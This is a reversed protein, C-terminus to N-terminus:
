IKPTRQSFAINKESIEIKLSPQPHMQENTHGNKQHLTTRQPVTREIM